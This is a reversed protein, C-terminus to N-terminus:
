PKELKIVLASNGSVMQRLAMMGLLFLSWTQNHNEQEPSAQQSLM